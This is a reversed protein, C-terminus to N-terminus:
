RITVPLGYSSLILRAQEMKEQTPPLLNALCYRMGLGNYKSQAIEHYALLEVGELHPLNVLFKASASLNEEDDNLGPILPIRIIIRAGNQSILRLNSLIEDNPVGTFQTHQFSDMCKLDFLFLSVYPLLKEIVPWPAAGSTDLATHIDRERCMELIEALFDPQMLPEGGSFTVGGGSQDFFPLDREIERLLETPAIEYGLIERAGPYCTEACTGCNDCVNWRTIFDGDRCEIAERPCVEVCAGCRLCRAARFILQPHPLQSEPNHCWQCSLPCGKFFVTTRIGPGDNISYKKIDFIVGSTM